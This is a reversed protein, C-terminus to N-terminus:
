FVPSSWIGPGRNPYAGVDEETAPLTVSRCLEGLVDRWVNADELGRWCRNGAM